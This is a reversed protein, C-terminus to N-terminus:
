NEELDSLVTARKSFLKKVMYPGKWNQKFKGWPDTVILRTLKLVMDGEKIKDPKIKKNYARAIM